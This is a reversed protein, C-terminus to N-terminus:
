RTPEYTGRVHGNLTVQRARDDASFGDASISSRGQRLVVGRDSRMTRSDASVHLYETELTAAPGDRSPSSEMRVDDLFHIQQGDSSILARKSQVTVPSAAGLQRLVPRELVTTDDDMYHTLKVASLRQHPLGRADFALADFREMVFDPDHSFGASDLVAESQSVQNLWFALAALMLALALPAWNVHFGPHTM